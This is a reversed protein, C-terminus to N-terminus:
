GDLLWHRTKSWGLFRRPSSPDSPNLAPTQGQSAAILGDFAPRFRNQFEPRQAQLHSEGWAIFEAVEDASVLSLYVLMQRWAYATNKVTILRAHWNSEPIQQRRCIWVFCQRAMGPLQPRLSEVLGLGSLLPALNQTTLIQQQEIIMGNTAPDWGSYVVGARASCLAAFDDQATRPRSFWSRSQKQEPERLQLVQEYDIGYYTPYLTGNMLQAAQKAARAFKGSFEGMFIDAALEDVLPIALEAQKILARLEQLLKNPALAHPFSVLALSTVEQLTQRAVESTSLNKARFAEIAAVWPLEEIRVQSQLDLLLLSRRRRFARYITADLQRLSPDAIGAARLGSTIQPLVVALVDGSPILGRQVLVEVPADLCRQVKRRISDPLDKGPDLGCLPAEDVSIPQIVPTLDEIGEKGSYAQLRPIVVAAIRHHMPTRAQLGQRERISRCHPSDPLGRKTIYRALLLRIQGVDRGTLSAADATCRSLYPMLQALSSKRHLPKASLRHQQRLREFRQLLDTARRRWDSPFTKCPWGGQVNYSGNEPSRTKGDPAAALQPPTGEVTELFLAVLEDYLPTWVEIAERQTAIAQNPTIARLSDITTNVDQVFVRSSLRQPHESPAPYFRLQSMFPALQDLLERAQQHHGGRILWAVVLLAGEEPVDIEYTGRELRETLEALGAESLFYRNLALRDDADAELAHRAILEHEHARLSGGALLEGTAFGGTVVELTAWAPVSAVPTRSGVQLSGVLMQSFVAAWKQAKQTARERTDADEHQEATSLAKALQAAAYGPNATHLGSTPTSGVGERDQASREVM